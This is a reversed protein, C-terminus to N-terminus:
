PGGLCARDGRDLDLDDVAVDHDVESGEESYAHIGIEIPEQSGAIADVVLHPHGGFNPELSVEVGVAAAEGSGEFEVVTFWVMRNREAM